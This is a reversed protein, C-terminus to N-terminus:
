PILNSIHSSLQFKDNNTLKIAFVKKGIAKYESITQCCCLKTSGKFNCPFMMQIHM